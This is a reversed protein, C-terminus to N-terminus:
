VAMTKRVTTLASFRSGARHAPVAFKALIKGIPAVGLPNMPQSAEKM